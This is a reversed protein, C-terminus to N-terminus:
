ESATKIWSAQIVPADFVEVRQWINSVVPRRWTTIVRRPLENCIILQRCERAQLFKEHM